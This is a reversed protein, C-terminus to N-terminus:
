RRLRTRQCAGLSQRVLRYDEAIAQRHEGADALSAVPLQAPLTCALRYWLLTDRQPQAAGADVFETLSVFWRPPAGAERTVTISVPQSRANQLFFQTESSGPLAGPVHFARGIGVIAPPADEALSAALIDRVRQGAEATFPIAADPAILQIDVPRGRVPNAFVLWQSRRQPSVPRGRADNPLDGLYRVQAAMGQPGRILATVNGEIVFRTFGAPVGPAEEPRLPIARQLEVQAVIPAGLALDAFDAYTWGPAVPAPVAARSDSRQAAAPAALSSAAALLLLPLRPLCPM